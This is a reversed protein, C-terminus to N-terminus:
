VSGYGDTYTPSESVFAYDLYAHPDAGSPCYLGIWDFPAELSPSSVGRWSVRVIDGNAVLRPDTTLSAGSVLHLDHVHDSFRLRPLAGLQSRLLVTQRQQVANRPRHVSTSALLLAAVCLLLPFAVGVKVLTKMVICLWVASTPIRAYKKWRAHAHPFIRSAQACNSTRARVHAICAIISTM